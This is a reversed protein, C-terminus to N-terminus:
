KKLPRKKPPMPRRVPPRRMPPRRMPMGPRRMPPRMGPKGPASTAPKKFLNLIKEVPLELMGTRKGLYKRIVYNIQESNWGQKKLKKFIENEKVGKKKQADIYHILNFLFNRDKFLYTEYKNKYWNQLFVYAVIGVLFLFVVIVIFLAWRMGEEDQEIITVLDLDQLAPSIFIPVSVIDVDETTLFTITKGSGVPIEVFGSKVNEGYAKDFQMNELQKIFISPAADFDGTQKVDLVFVNILPYTGDAYKADIRKYKIQSDLNRVDWESVADAYEFESGELTGGLFERVAQVNISGSNSYFSVYDTNIREDVSLPIRLALFDNVVQTYEDDNGAAEYATEIATLQQTLSTADLVTTMGDQYFQPFKSVASSVNQVNAKAETLKQLFLAQYDAVDITFTRSGTKGNVDTVSIMLPVKGIETFTHTIKNENTTKPSASGFQWSYSDISANNLKKVDVRFNMPFRTFAIIPFVNEVEPVPEVTISEEFLEVGKFDISYDIDGTKTPLGFDAGNLSIRQFGDTNVKASGLSLDYVTVINTRGLNSDYPVFIDDITITQDHESALFVPVICGETPCINGDYVEYIYDSMESGLESIPYNGTINLTGLAAFKRGEAFIEYAAVESEAYQGEAFFACGNGDLYGRIKTKQDVGNDNFLCVYYDAKETVLFEVECYREEYGSTLTDNVECEALSDVFDLDYIAANTTDADAMVKLKAGIRFGPAEELTIRQCFMRGGGAMDLESLAKSGDFCSYSKKALCQGIGIKDNGYEISGDDFFDIKLQNDCDEAADSSIKFEPEDINNVTGTFRFGILKTEGRMLEFTKSAEENSATYSAGCGEPVCSYDTEEVLSGDSKLLDLIEISNGESDEVLEDVNESTISLNVWGQLTAGPGYVKSISHSANGVSFAASVFLINVFVLFFLVLLIGRRM